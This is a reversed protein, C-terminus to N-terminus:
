VVPGLKHTATLEGRTAFGEPYLLQMGGHLNPIDLGWMDVYAKTNKDDAAVM